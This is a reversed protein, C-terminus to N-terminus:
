KSIFSRWGHWKAIEQANGMDVRKFLMMKRDFFLKGDIKRLYKVDNNVVKTDNLFELFSNKIYDRAKGGLVEEKLVYDYYGVPFFGYKIHFIALDPKPSTEFTRKGYAEELINCLVYAYGKGTNKEKDHVIIEWHGDEDNISTVRAIEKEHDLFAVKTGNEEVNDSVELSLSNYFDPFVKTEPNLAFDNNIYTVIEYLKKDSLVEILRDRINPKSLSTELM